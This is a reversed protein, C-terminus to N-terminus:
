SLGGQWLARETRAVLRHADAGFPLGLVTNVEADTGEFLERVAAHRAEIVRKKAADDLRTQLWNDVAWALASHRAEDGSISRFANRLERDSAREAQWMAVIAGWTERVCGEIANEIAMDELSRPKPLDVDAIPPKGGFRAALANMMHAHRIEDRASALAMRALGRPAGHMDLERALYIFAPISAAELWAAHALWAGIASNAEICRPIVLGAPRRGESSQCHGTDIYETYASVAKVAQDHFEVACTGASLGARSMLMNCMARCADADLRCSEVRLDLPPDAPLDVEFTKTRHITCDDQWSEEVSGVCAAPLTALM